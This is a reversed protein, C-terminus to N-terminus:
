DARKKLKVVDLSYKGAKPLTLWLHGNNWIGPLEGSGLVIGSGAQKLDIDTRALLIPVLMLRVDDNKISALWTYVKDAVPTPLCSLLAPRGYYYVHLERSMKTETSMPAEVYVYKGDIKFALDTMDSETTEFYVVPQKSLRVSKLGYHAAVARNTWHGPDFSIDPLDEGLLFYHNGHVPYPPVVAHGGKNAAYVAERQEDAIHVMWFRQAQWVISVLCLVFLLYICASQLKREWASDLPQGANYFICGAILLQAYTTAFAREPPWATFLYAGHTLASPLLFLWAPMPINRFWARGYKQVLGIIGFIFPVFALYQMVAAQPLHLLWDLIREGWSAALYAHVEPDDTIQLRAANGPAMLTLAGGLCLGLAGGLIIAGLRRRGTFFLWASCFLAAPPLAASTPYDLSAVFIGAFFYLGAYLGCRWGKQCADSHSVCARADPEADLAFRMPLFIAAQGFMAIQGGVSLWFFASGFSPMGLWLLAALALLWCAGLHQRWQQGFICALLMILYFCFATAALIAYLWRPLMFLLYVMLNGTFRGCWTFYMESAMQFASELTLPSTVIPCGAFFRAYGPTIAHSFVFNDTMYPCISIFYFMVAFICGFAVYTGIHPINRM